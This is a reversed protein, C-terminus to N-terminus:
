TCVLTGQLLWEIDGANTSRTAAKELKHAEEQFVDIFNRGIIKRKQEPDTVGKLQSLFRQSADVVTLQIGLHNTLTQHVTKAEDQRLLGNDM